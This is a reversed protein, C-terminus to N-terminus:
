LDPFQLLVCILPVNIQDSQPSKLVNTLVVLKGVILNGTHALVIDRVENKMPITAVLEEFQEDCPEM